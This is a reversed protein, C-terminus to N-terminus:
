DHNFHRVVLCRVPQRLFWNASALAVISTSRPRAKQTSPPRSLCRCDHLVSLDSLLRCNRGRLNQSRVTFHAADCFPRGRGLKPVSGDLNALFLCKQADFLAPWYVIACRLVHRRSQCVALEYQCAPRHGHASGRDPDHRGRDARRVEGAGDSRRLLHADPVLVVLKDDASIQLGMDQGGM